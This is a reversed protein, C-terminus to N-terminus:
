YEVVEDVDRMSELVGRHRLEGDGCGYQVSFEDVRLRGLKLALLCERDAHAVKDDPSCEIVKHLDKLASDINTLAM